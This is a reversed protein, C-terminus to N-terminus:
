AAIENGRTATRRRDNVAAQGHGPAEWFRWCDGHGPAVIALPGHLPLAGQGLLCLRPGRDQGRAAPRPGGGLRFARGEQTAAAAYAQADQEATDSNCFVAIPWLKLGTAARAYVVYIRDAM